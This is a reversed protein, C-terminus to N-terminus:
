REGIGATKWQLEVMRASTQIAMTTESLHKLKTKVRTVEVRALEAAQKAENSRLKAVAQRDAVTGQAELFALAEVREAELELLAAKKEAEALVSVGRESERRIAALESVVDLPTEIMEAM